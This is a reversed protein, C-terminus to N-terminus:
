SEHLGHIEATQIQAIKEANTLKSVGRKTVDEDDKDFKAKLEAKLEDFKAKIEDKTMDSTLNFKAKLQSLFLFNFAIDLNETM